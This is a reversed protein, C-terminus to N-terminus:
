KTNPDIIWKSNIKAFTTIEKERKRDRGGKRCM